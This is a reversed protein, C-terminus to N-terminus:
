LNNPTTNDSTLGFVSDIAREMLIRYGTEIDQNGYNEVENVAQVGPGANAELFYITGKPDQIFDLGFALGAQPGLHAAIAKASRIVVQPVQQDQINHAALIAQEEPTIPRSHETPNLPIISGGMGFNSTFHRARLYLPSEPVELYDLLSSGLQGLDEPASPSQIFAEQSKTTSSALLSSFLVDGKSSTIIRYSTFRDSPTTVFEKFHFLRKLNNTMNDMDFFQCLRQYQEDTELLYKGKGGGQGTMYAVIPFHPQETFQEFDAVEIRLVEPAIVSLEAELRASDITGIESAENPTSYDQNNSERITIGQYELIGRIHKNIRSRALIEDRLGSGGLLSVLGMSRDIGDSGWGIPVVLTDLPQSPRPEYEAAEHPALSSERQTREAEPYKM